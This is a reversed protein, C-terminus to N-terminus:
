LNSEVFEVFEESDTEFVTYGEPARHRGIEGISEGDIQVEWDDEFRTNYAVFRIHIGHDRELDEIIEHKLVDDEFRPPRYPRLGHREFEEIAEQWWEPLGSVDVDRYPDEPDEGPTRSRLDSVNRDGGSGPEM